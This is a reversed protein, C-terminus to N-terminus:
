VCLIFSFSLNLLTMFIGADLLSLMHSSQIPSKPYIVQLIFPRLTSLTFSSFFELWKKKQVKQFELNFEQLLEIQLQQQQKQNISLM